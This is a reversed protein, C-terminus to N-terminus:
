DRYPTRNKKKKKGPVVVVWKLLTGDEGCEQNPKTQDRDESHSEKFIILHGISGCLQSSCNHSLLDPYCVPLRNVSVCSDGDASIGCVPFM